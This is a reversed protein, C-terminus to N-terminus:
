IRMERGKMEDVPLSSPIHSLREALMSMKSVLLDLEEKDLSDLKLLFEENERLLGEAEKPLDEEGSEEAVFCKMKATIKVSDFVIGMCVTDLMRLAGNFAAICKQSEEKAIDSKERRSAIEEELRAKEKELEELRDEPSTRITEILKELSETKMMLVATEADLAAAAEEMAAAAAGIAGISARQHVSLSDFEGSLRTLVSSFRSDEIGKLKTRYELELESVLKEFDSAAVVKVGGSLLANDTSAKHAPAKLGTGLPSGGIQGQAIKLEM